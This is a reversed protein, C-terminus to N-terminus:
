ATGRPSFATCLAGKDFAAYFGDLSIGFAEEFAQQWTSRKGLLKWYNM